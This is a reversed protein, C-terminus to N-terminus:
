VTLLQMVQLPAMVLIEVQVKLVSKFETWLVLWLVYQVLKTVVHEAM